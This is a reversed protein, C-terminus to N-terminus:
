LWLMADVISSESGFYKVIGVFQKFIDEYEKMCLFTPLKLNVGNVAVVFGHKGKGGSGIDVDDSSSDEDVWRVRKEKPKVDLSDAFTIAPKEAIKVEITLINTLRQILQKDRVKKPPRKKDEKSDMKEEELVKTFICNPKAEDDM